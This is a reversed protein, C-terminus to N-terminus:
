GTWIRLETAAGIGRRTPTTVCDAAEHMGMDNDEAVTNRQRSEQLCLELLLRKSPDTSTGHSDMGPTSGRYMHTGTLRRTRPLRSVDPWDMM